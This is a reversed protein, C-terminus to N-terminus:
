DRRPWSMIIVPRGHEPLVVRAAWITALKSSLSDEKGGGCRPLISCMGEFWALSSSCREVPREGDELGVSTIFM